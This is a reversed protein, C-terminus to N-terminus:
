KGLCEVKVFVDGGHRGARKWALERADEISDASFTYREIQDHNITDTVTAQFVLSGEANTDTASMLEIFDGILTDIDDIGQAELMAEFKERREGDPIQSDATQFARLMLIMTTKANASDTKM